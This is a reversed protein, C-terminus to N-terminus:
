KTRRCLLWATLGIGGVITAAQWPKTRVYNTVADLAQHAEEVAEEADKPLLRNAKNFLDELKKRATDAKDGVFSESDSLLNIAENLLSQLEEYGLDEVQSVAKKAASKGAM